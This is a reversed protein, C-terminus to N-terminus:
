EKKSNDNCIMSLKDFDKYWNINEINYHQPPELYFDPTNDNQTKFQEPFRYNSLNWIFLYKLDGNSTALYHEGSNM